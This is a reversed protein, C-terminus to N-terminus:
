KKKKKSRTSYEPLGSMWNMETSHKFTYNIDKRRRRRLSIMIFLM